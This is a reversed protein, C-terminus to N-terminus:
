SAHEPQNELFAILNQIVPHLRLTTIDTATLRDLLITTANDGLLSKLTYHPQHQALEWELETFSKALLKELTMKDQFFIVEIEPILPILMVSEPAKVLWGITNIQEYIADANTTHTAFLLAVPLQRTAALTSAASQAASRGGGNFFTVDEQLAVPLLKHIIALDNESEVVVYAKTM